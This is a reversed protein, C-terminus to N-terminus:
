RPARESTETHEEQAQRFPRTLECARAASIGYFAGLESWSYRGTCYRTWLRELRAPTWRTPRGVPVAKGAKRRWTAQRMRQLVDPRNKWYYDHQYRRRSEVDAYPM